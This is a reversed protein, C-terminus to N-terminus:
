RSAVPSMPPAKAPLPKCPLELTDYGDQKKGKAREPLQYDIMCQQDPRRGWAVRLSGQDQLARMVIRSGQGVGGVSDETAMDFVDAGFPLRDGNPLRSDILVPRARRTPYSLLVVAGARPAVSRTSNLLEVDDSMDGPNLEVTNLQYPSLSTVLGYGRYDVKNQSFGVRADEADPAHLLGVTEGLMSAFTVGGAHALVSGSARLSGQRYGSGQSASLGVNAASARYDLNGSASNTGGRTDRSAGLSYSLDGRQDLYGSVGTAVDTGSRNDHNVFTTLVPASVSRGLPISINFSVVTSKERSGAYVSSGPWMSQMRQASLSYTVDRWRNTYGMSYSLASGSRKWYQTASGNAYLTGLSSGLDQSANLDFRTRPRGLDGYRRIQGADRLAIAENFGIFGSTSYRYALLSFNTGSNPLNRSYALRYSSGSISGYNPLNASAVSIDGGFAGISTNIAAGGMVSGYYDSAALGGYGTVMNSLGRRIVGEFINQGSSRNASSMARGVSVSYRTTGPRLLEVGTAFPVVFTHEEGNAEVVKVDLDGGYGAAQLSEIAFSGPPVTTEYILFGRQYVSVSANTAATGRIVPAYNRLSQPLMREDSRINVGRYSVADFYDGGTSTEGILLQSRWAPLDTTVYTQGRQYDAGAGNSAWTLSGYHRLRWAGLNLGANLGAYGRTDRRGNSEMMNVNANYNLRGATVGSDWNSPDVYNDMLESHLYYKPVTLYLRQEGMDSKVIVGPVFRDLDECVLEDGLPVRGHEAAYRATLQIDLGARRLFDVNYCPQGGLEQTGRYEVDQTGRWKGNVYLELRYQGPIVYGSREFRSLDITSGGIGPMLTQPDFKVVRQSGQALAGPGFVMALAAILLRPKWQSRGRGCCGDRRRQGFALRTKGRLSAYM